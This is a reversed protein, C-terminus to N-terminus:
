TRATPCTSSTKVNMAEYKKKRSREVAGSTAPIRRMTEPMTMRSRPQGAGRGRRRAGEVRRGGEESGRRPSSRRRSGSSFKGELDELGPPISAFWKINAVDEESFADNFSERLRDSTLDGGDKHATVYGAHSSMMRAIDPRM